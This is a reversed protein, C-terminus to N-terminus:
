LEEGFVIGMKFTEILLELMQASCERYKLFYLLLDIYRDYKKMSQENLKHDSSKKQKQQLCEYTIIYCVFRENIFIDKDEEVSNPVQIPKRKLIWYALYAINKDTITHKIGHFEKLRLIDSYYDLLVHYLIRDNCEVCGKEEETSVYGARDLFENVQKQLESLRSDFEKEGVAKILEIYNQQM